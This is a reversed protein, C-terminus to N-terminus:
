ADDVSDRPREDTIDEETGLSSKSNVTTLIKNRAVTSDYPRAHCVDPEDLIELNDLDVETLECDDQFQQRFREKDLVLRGAQYICHAVFCPSLNSYEVAFWFSFVM